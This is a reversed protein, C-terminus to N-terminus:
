ENEKRGEKKLILRYEEEVEKQQIEILRKQEKLFNIQWELQEKRTLPRYDNM